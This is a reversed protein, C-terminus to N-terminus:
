GPTTSPTPFERKVRTGFPARNWKEKAAPKLDYRTPSPTRLVTRKPFRPGDSALFGVGKRSYVRNSLVYLGSTYRFAEYTQPSINPFNEMANRKQFPGLGKGILDTSRQLKSGFCIPHPPEQKVVYDFDAFSENSIAFNEGDCSM